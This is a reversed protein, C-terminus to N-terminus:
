SCKSYGCGPNTCTACGSEHNLISGCEPCEPPTGMDLISIRDKQPQEAQSEQDGIHKQLVRGIADACSLIMEGEHWPPIPCRIGRLQEVISMPDVGARLGISILRGTVESNSAACGGSKGMRAFVECLGHEDKNINVYLNGCGTRTKETIGITTSPRQRPKIWRFVEEAPGAPEEAAKTEKGKQLVQVKRSGDRYVTVGKCGSEYALRYVREVDAKTADNRFNVTKSVANDTHKQFSAQIRIHDEPEIDHSTVFLDQVPKPIGYMDKLTGKESILNMLEDSYFQGENAIKEFRRNVELLAEGDLVTKKYVVAFLPEIGSSAGAIMSITGTPAVTTVTANRLPLGM